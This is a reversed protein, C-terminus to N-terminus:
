RTGELVLRRIQLRVRQLKQRRWEEERAAAKLCRYAEDYAAEAEAASQTVARGQLTDQYESQRLSTLTSAAKWALCAEDSELELMPIQKRLRALQTSPSVASYSKPPPAATEAIKSTTSNNEPSKPLVPSGRPAPSSKFPSSFPM